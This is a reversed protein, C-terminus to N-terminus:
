NYKGIDIFEPNNKVGDTGTFVAQMKGSAYDIIVLHFLSDSHIYGDAVDKEADEKTLASKIDDISIKEKSDVIKRFKEWRIINHASSGFENEKCAFSNVVCLSENNDWLLNEVLPTDSNRLVAKGKDSNVCDEACYGGNSDSLIINNAFAFDNSESVMYEGVSKATDYNELAYRLAYVYSKKGDCTYPEGSGVDLIGAFVGDNNVGTVISLMGMVSISTLSREKNKMHLVCHATCMQNDSGLIWELNRATITKGTTSKDGWVSLASCSTGRLTDPIIQLLAAEEYSIKKNQSFGREGNSVAEAFGKIENRYRDPLSSEIVNMRKEVGSYDNSINPCTTNINEYIYPEMVCEYEPYAM